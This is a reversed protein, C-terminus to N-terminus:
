TRSPPTSWIISSASRDPLGLVRDTLRYGQQRSVRAAYGLAILTHAPAGGDAAAARDESTLVTLRRAHAAPEAGGAGRFQPAVPEIVTMPVAM